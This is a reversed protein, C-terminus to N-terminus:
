ALPADVFRAVIEFQNRLLPVFRESAQAHEDFRLGFWGVFTPASSATPQAGAQGPTLRVAIRNVLRDAGSNRHRRGRAAFITGDLQSIHYEPAAIGRM